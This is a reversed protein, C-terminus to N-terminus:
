VKIKEKYIEKLLRSTKSFEIGMKGRPSVTLGRNSWVVKGVAVLSGNRESKLEHNDIIELVINCGPSYIVNSEIIIGHYSFNLTHGTCNPLREGFRVRKRYPLRKSRRNNVNGM